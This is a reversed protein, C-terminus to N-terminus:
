LLPCKHVLESGDYGEKLIVSSFVGKNTLYFIGHHKILCLLLRTPLRLEFRFAEVQDSTLRKEVTLSLLEHLVAVARKRAKADPIDLRRPNLYPSPFDMKQWRRLHELYKLHPRFGSPFEIRFAFPGPFNGDRSARSRGTSPFPPRKASEERSTVALSSDWNELHLYETRNVENLSFYQPYKLVLSNKFDSPLGMENAVSDVTKLPLRCDVSLMLLKRLNKVLIPEMEARADPEMSVILKAKDTLTVAPPSRCGHGGSVRFVTPYKQIVAMHNWKDVFGVFKELDRLLVVGSKQSQIVSILQLIMAPKKQLEMVRDLEQVTHYIKKKPKRGLTTKHMIQIRRYGLLS